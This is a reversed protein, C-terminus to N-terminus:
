VAHERGSLVTGANFQNCAAKESTRGTETKAAWDKAISLSHALAAAVVVPRIRSFGDGRNLLADSVARFAIMSQEKAWAREENSLDLRNLLDEAQAVRAAIESDTVRDPM